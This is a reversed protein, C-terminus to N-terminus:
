DSLRRKPFWPFGIMDNADDATGTPEVFEVTNNEIKFKLFSRLAFRMCITDQISTPDGCYNYWCFEQMYFIKPDSTRLLPSFQYITALDHVNNWVTESYRYKVKLSDPITLHISDKVVPKLIKDFDLCGSFYLTDNHSISDRACLWPDIKPLGKSFQNFFDASTSSLHQFIAINSLEAVSIPPPAAKKKMSSCCIQGLFAMSCAITYFLYKM